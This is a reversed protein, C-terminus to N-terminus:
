TRRLRFTPCVEPDDDEYLYMRRSDKAISLSDLTDEQLFREPETFSLRVHGYEDSGTPWNRVTVKGGTGDDSAELTLTVGKAHAEGVYTGALEGSTASVARKGMCAEVATAASSCGALPSLLVLAAAATVLRAGGGTLSVRTM